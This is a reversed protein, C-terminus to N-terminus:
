ANRSLAILVTSLTLFTPASFSIWRVAALLEIYPYRVLCRSCKVGESMNLTLVSCEVVNSSTSPLVNTADDGMAPEKAPASAEALSPLTLAPEPSPLNQDVVHAKQRAHQRLRKAKRFTRGCSTCIFIVGGEHKEARAHQEANAMSAFVQLCQSCQVPEM